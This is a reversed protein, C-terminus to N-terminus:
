SPYVMAKKVKGKIAETKEKYTAIKDLISDLIGAHEGASVLNCFLDDFQMPHKSLADSLNSGSEIDSRISGMLDQISPNSNGRGIIELAQVLPVGSNMMTSLQRSFISIDKATIKKKGASFLPKAKKRVKTPNVGQRRLMAKALSVSAGNIEGKVIQGRKDIGEWSFTNQKVAAKTAM